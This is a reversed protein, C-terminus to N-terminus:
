VHEVHRGDTSTVGHQNEPSGGVWSESVNLKWGFHPSDQKFRSTKGGLEEDSEPQILLQLFVDMHELSDVSAVTRKHDNNTEFRDTKRNPAM